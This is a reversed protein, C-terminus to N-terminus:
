TRACSSRPRAAHRGSGPSPRPAARRITAAPPPTSRQWNTRWSRWRTAASPSAARTWCWRTASNGAEPLPSSPARSARCWNSNWNPYPCNWRAPACSALTMPWSSWATARACAACCACCTPRTACAWSARSRRWRRQCRHRCLGVPGAGSRAAPSENRHPHHRRRRADEADAGLRPRGAAPPDRHAGAGARARAYRLVHCAPPHPHSRAAQDRQVAQRSAAPVHLKLEQEPM